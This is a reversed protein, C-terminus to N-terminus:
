PPFDVGYIGFIVVLADILIKAFKRMKVTEQCKQYRPNVGPKVGDMKADKTLDEDMQPTTLTTVGGRAYLSIWPYPAHYGQTPCTAGVWGM